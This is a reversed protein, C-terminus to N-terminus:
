KSSLKTELVALRECLNAMSRILYMNIMMSGSALCGVLVSFDDMMKEGM